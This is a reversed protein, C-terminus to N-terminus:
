DLDIKVQVNPVFSFRGHHEIVNGAKDKIDVGEMVAVLTDGTEPKCEVLVGDIVVGTDYTCTLRKGIHNRYEGYNFLLM